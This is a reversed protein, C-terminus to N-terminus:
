RKSSLGRLPKALRAEFEAPAVYQLVERGKADLVVALGLAPYLWHQLRDGEALREAPEGFRAQLVEASLQADPIYSVGVLASTGLDAIAAETLTHQRTGSEQPIGPLTERWHAVRPALAETDFRLLLRGNVGGTEFREVYAELAVPGEHQAERTGMLAVKLDGGWRQRLEALTSGRLALGMVRIQGAELKEIQWPAGQQMGTRIAPDAPTVMRWAVLAAALLLTLATAALAIFIPSRTKSM